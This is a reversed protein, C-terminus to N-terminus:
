LDWRYRFEVMVLLNATKVGVKRCICTAGLKCSDSERVVAGASEHLCLGPKSKSLPAVASLHCFGTPHIAGRKPPIVKTCACDKQGQATGANMPELKGILRWFPVLVYAPTQKYPKCFWILVLKPSSVIRLSCLLLWLVSHCMVVTM